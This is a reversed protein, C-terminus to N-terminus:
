TSLYNGNAGGQQAYANICREPAAGYQFVLLGQPCPQRQKLLPPLVSYGNQEKQDHRATQQGVQHLGGNCLINEAKSLVPEYLIHDCTKGATDRPIKAFTNKSKRAASSASLKPNM